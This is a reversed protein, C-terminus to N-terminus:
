CDYEEEITYEKRHAKYYDYERQNLWFWGMDGRPEFDREDETIYAGGDILHVPHKGSTKVTYPHYKAWEYEAGIFTVQKKTTQPEQKPEEEVTIKAEAPCFFNFEYKRGEYEINGYENPTIYADIGKYAVEIVEGEELTKLREYEQRTLRIRM